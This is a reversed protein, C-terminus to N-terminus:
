GGLSIKRIAETIEHVYARMERDALDPDHSAIAEVAKLLKENHNQENPLKSLIKTNLAESRPTVPALHFTEWVQLLLPNGCHSLLYTHFKLAAGHRTERDHGKLAKMIERAYTRLEKIQWGNMNMASFRAAGAEIIERLEYRKLLDGIDQDEFYEVFRGLRSGRHKLVGEAELRLLSERVTSRSMGLMNAIKTETVRHGPALRGDEIIGKLKEYAQHSKTKTKSIPM